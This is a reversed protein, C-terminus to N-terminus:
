ARATSETIVNLRAYEGWINLAAVNYARAADPESDFYGLHTKHRDRTIQASWSQARKSWAVGKYRSSCGPQKAANASNQSNTAPRLNERRNDLGNGNRHDVRSIGPMIVHHMRVFTGRHGSGPVYAHAYWQEQLRGYRRGSTTASWTFPFVLPLDVADVLAM